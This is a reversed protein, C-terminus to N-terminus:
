HTIRIVDDAAFNAGQTGAFVAQGSFGWSLEADGSARCPRWRVTAMEHDNRLTLYIVNDM